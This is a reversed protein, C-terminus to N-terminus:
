LDTLWREHWRREMFTPTHYMRMNIPCMLDGARLMMIATHYQVVPRQQSRMGM